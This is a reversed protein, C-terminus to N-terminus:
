RGMELHDQRELTKFVRVLKWSLNKVEWEIRLHASSRSMACNWNYKKKYQTNLQMFWLFWQSAKKRSRELAKKIVSWWIRIWLIFSIPRSWAEQLRNSFQWVTSLTHDRITNIRTKQINCFTYWLPRYHSRNEKSHLYLAKLFYESGKVKEM